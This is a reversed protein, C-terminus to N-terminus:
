EKGAGSLDEITEVGLTRAAWVVLGASVTFFLVLLIIIAAPIVM